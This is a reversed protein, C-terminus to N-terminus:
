EDTWSRNLNWCWFYLQCCKFFAWFEYPLIYKMEENNWVQQLEVYRCTGDKVCQVVTEPCIWAEDGCTGSHLATKMQVCTQDSAECECMVLMEAVSHPMGGYFQGTAQRCRDRNCQGAMCAHLIPVLYKNCVADSVCVTLRDLCSGAGNPVTHSCANSSPMSLTCSCSQSQIYHLMLVNGYDILTSSQWHSETSRKQLAATFIFPFM